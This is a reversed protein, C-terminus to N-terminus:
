VDDDEEEEPSAEVGCYVLPGPPFISFGVFCGPFAACGSLALALLASAVINRM